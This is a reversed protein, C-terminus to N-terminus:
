NQATIALAFGIVLQQGYRLEFGFIGDLMGAVVPAIEVADRPQEVRVTEMYALRTAIGLVYFIAM